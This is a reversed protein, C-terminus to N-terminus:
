PQSVGQTIPLISCDPVPIQVQEIKKKPLGNQALLNENLISIFNQWM